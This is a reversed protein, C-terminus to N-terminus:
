SAQAIAAERTATRSRHFLEGIAVIFVVTAIAVIMLSLRLAFSRRIHRAIINM